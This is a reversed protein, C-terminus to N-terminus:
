DNTPSVGKLQKALLIAKEICKYKQTKASNESSFALENAITKMDKRQFYFLDFLEKCRESIDNLVLELKKLETEKDATYDLDDATLILTDRWESELSKQRKRAENMWLFRNIGYLYTSLKSSLEFSPDSVKEILLILSDNFLEQAIETDGGSSIILGRVRPFEKYLVKLAKETQGKRIWAIIDLDNM